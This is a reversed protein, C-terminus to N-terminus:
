NNGNKDKKSANQAKEQLKKFFDAPDDFPSSAPSDFEFNVEEDHTQTSTHIKQKSSQKSVGEALQVVAGDTQNWVIKGMEFTCVFMGNLETEDSMPFGLASNNVGGSEEYKKQISSRMFFVGLSPHHVVMGKEFVQMTGESRCALESTKKAGLLVGKTKLKKIKDQIPTM